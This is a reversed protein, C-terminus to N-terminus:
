FVAGAGLFGHAGAIFSLLAHVLGLQNWTEPPPLWQRETAVIMVFFWVASDRSSAVLTDWADLFLLCNRVSPQQATLVIISLWIARM